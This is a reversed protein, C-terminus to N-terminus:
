AKSRRTHIGAYTDGRSMSRPDAVIAFGRDIARHRLEPPLVSVRTRHGHAFVSGVMESAEIVQAITQGSLWDPEGITDALRRNLWSVHDPVAREVLGAVAQDIGGLVDVADRVDICDREPPMTVLAVGHDPCVGVSPFCWLIRHRWASMEGDEGLCLPCIRRVRPTAFSKSCSEDRFVHYRSLLRFAGRLVRDRAEGALTALKGVVEPDGTLFAGVPINLDKFLRQMPQGTHVAALRAAWSLATEATDYALKPSLSWTM